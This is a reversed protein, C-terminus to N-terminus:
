WTCSIPKINPACYTSSKVVKCWRSSLPHLLCHPIQFIETWNERSVIVMGENPSQNGMVSSVKRPPTTENSSSAGSGDNSAISVRNLRFSRNIFTVRALRDVARGYGVNFDEDIQGQLNAIDPM